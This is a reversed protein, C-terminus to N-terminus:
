RPARSSGAPAASAACSPRRRDLRDRRVGRAHARPHVGRLGDVPRVPVRVGDAPDVVTSRAQRRSAGSRMPATAAAALRADLVGWAAGVSIVNLVVAKLPLLLSRFARALLVFTILAILAIMLPFNGYVADIFDHNQAALGGVRVDSGDARVVARVRDLTDRGAASSGDAVALADVVAAGPQRWTASAPAVAGHIGSVGALARAVADPSKSGEVLM